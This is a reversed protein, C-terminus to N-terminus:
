GCATWLVGFPYGEVVNDSFWTIGAPFRRYHTCRRLPSRRDLTLVPFSLLGVHGYLLPRHGDGPEDDIGTGNPRLPPISPHENRIPLM